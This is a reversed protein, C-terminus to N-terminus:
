PASQYALRNMEPHHRTGSTPDTPLAPGAFLPAHHHSEECICRPNLATKRELWGGRKRRLFLLSKMEGRGIWSLVNLHSAGFDTDRGEYISGGCMAVGRRAQERQRQTALQDVGKTMHTLFRNQGVQTKGERGRKEEGRGFVSGRPTGMRTRQSTIHATESVKSMKRRRLKGDM